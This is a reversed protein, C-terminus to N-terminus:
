ADNTNRHEQRPESPPAPLPQWHSPNGARKLDFTDTWYPEDHDPWYWRGVWWTAFDGNVSEFLLVEEDKPATSIDRWESM